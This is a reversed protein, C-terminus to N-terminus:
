DSPPKIRTADIPGDTRESYLGVNQSGCEPCQSTVGAAVGAFKHGNDHCIYLPLLEKGKYTVPWRQGHGSWKYISRDAAIGYIPYDYEQKERHKHKRSLATGVIIAVVILAVAIMLKLNKKPDAM